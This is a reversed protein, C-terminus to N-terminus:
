KESGEAKDKRNRKQEDKTMEKLGRNETLTYWTDAKADTGATFVKAAVIEGKKELILGLVTGTSGKVRPSAGRAIAIGGKADAKQANVICNHQNMEWDKRKPHRVIYAVAACAFQKVTLERIM